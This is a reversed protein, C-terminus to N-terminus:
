SPYTVITDKVQCRVPKDIDQGKVLKDRINRRYENFNYLNMLKGYFM